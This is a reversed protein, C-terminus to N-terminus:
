KNHRVVFGNAELVKSNDVIRTCINCPRLKQCKKECDLRAEAFMPVIFRSDAEVDLGIIIERLDGFWIGDKAYAKYSVEQVNNEGYFEIVDVCQEYIAVDEPRIFFSKISREERWGSQAVNGFVRISIDSAHAIAGLKNLSFGMEEVVYIDSVGLDILGHFIDWSNAYTDFFFPIGCKKCEQLTENLFTDPNSFKLKFDINTYDEKLSKFIDICKNNVFEDSDQVEIIIVSKLIKEKSTLSKIFHIDKLQFPIIIEDVEAMYKSDRIYPLCYKM